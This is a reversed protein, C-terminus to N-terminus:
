VKQFLILGSGSRPKHKQLAWAKFTGSPLVPDSASLDFGVGANLFVHAVLSKLITDVKIDHYSIIHYPITDVKIDGDASGTAFMTENSDM